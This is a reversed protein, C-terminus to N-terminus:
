ACAVEQVHANIFDTIDSRRYFINRAFRVFKPGRRSARWKRLTDTQIALLEAAERETILRASTELTQAPTVIFPATV